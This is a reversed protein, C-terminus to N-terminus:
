SRIIAHSGLFKLTLSESINTEAWACDTIWPGDDIWSDKDDSPDSDTGWRSEDGYVDRSEPYLRTARNRRM